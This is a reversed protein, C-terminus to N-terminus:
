IFRAFSKTAMTSSFLPSSLVPGFLDNFLTESTELLLVRQIYNQRPRPDRRLATPFSEPPMKPPIEFANQFSKWPIKLSFFSLPPYMGWFLTYSNTRPGTYFWFYINKEDNQPSPPRKPISQPFNRSANPPFKLAM